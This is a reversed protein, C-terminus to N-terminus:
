PLSFFAELDVLSALTLPLSLAHPYLYILFLIETGPARVPSSIPPLLLVHGAGASRSATVPHLGAGGSAPHPDAADRRLAPPPRLPRPASSVPPRPRPSIPRRVLSPANRLGSTPSPGVWALVDCGMTPLEHRLTLSFLTWKLERLYIDM